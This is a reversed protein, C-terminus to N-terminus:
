KNQGIQLVTNNTPFPDVVTIPCLFNSELASNSEESHVYLQRSVKSLDSCRKITESNLLSKYGARLKFLMQTKPFSCKVFFIIFHGAEFKLGSSTFLFILALDLGQSFLHGVVVHPGPRLNICTERLKLIHCSKVNESDRQCYVPLCPKLETSCFGCLTLVRNFLVRPSLAPNRPRFSLSVLSWQKQDKCQYPVSPQISCYM